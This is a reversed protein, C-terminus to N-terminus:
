LFVEGNQVHFIKADSNLHSLINDLHKRNTDTIFIQGFLDSTVLKVIEEVRKADLRDFIDDLLLLPSCAHTKKLFDFQAFKLAILYTKNQGQSGLRKIPYGSLAMELEDRHIGQTTFGLINDRARTELMRDKLKGYRQYQSAYELSVQENDQSISSYFQQFVPIFAQIFHTRENYIYTGVEDMQEEIVDFITPDVPTEMKLLANRQKLLKNYQLLLSLYHKNHQSIVGDMFKRREDSGASILKQDDPSVMVLPILGIHDSLRDYSKKNRKFQKKQRRKLGCYIHEEKNNKMYDGQIVFFDSSHNISQSDVSNIHSKSFSLYYIADLINTKGMGNNGVFCNIKNSFSLSAELINKFNVISLTDLRM